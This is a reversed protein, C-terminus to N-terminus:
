SLSRSAKSVKEVIEELEEVTSTLSGVAQTFKDAFLTLTENLNKKVGNQYDSLGKQIEQFISKLGSEIDKFKTVYEEHMGHLKELHSSVQESLIKRQSSIQLNEARLTEIISASEEQVNQLREAATDMQQVMSNTSSVSQNLAAANENFQQQLMSASHLINHFESATNKMSDILEEYSKIAQTMKDSMASSSKMVSREFLSATEALRSAAEEIRDSISSSAKQASEMSQVSAANMTRGMDDVHERFAAIASNLEIPVKEMAAGSSMMMESLRQLQDRTSGSVKEEMEKLLRNISGELTAVILESMERVGSDKESRLAEIAQSLKEIAGNIPSSVATGIVEALDTSFNSMSNTQKKSEGLIDRLFHAPVTEEGNEKLAFLEDLSQKVSNKISEQHEKRLLEREVSPTLKYNTDLHSSLTQATRQLFRFKFKEIFNFWISLLMGWISTSFATNMGALLQTISGRIAETSGTDFNGVGYTLGVFTGLIGIGVFIGPLMTWYRLNLCQEVIENASFYLFANEKTYLGDKTEFAFTSRYEAWLKSLCRAEPVELPLGGSNAQLVKCDSSLTNIKWSFRIYSVIFFLISSTIFWATISNASLVFLDGMSFPLLTKIIVNYAM